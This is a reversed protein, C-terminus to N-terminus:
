LTDLARQVEGPSLLESLVLPARPEPRAPRHLVYVPVGSRGLAALAAGIAPDRRTWDARLLVVDRAAFAKLVQADNLTTRKNVQCTVCWAATYDVFVARGQALLAQERAPSWTQWGADDRTQSEAVSAADSFMSPGFTAGFWGGVALLVVCLMIRARGQLTLVWVLAALLVLLVLLTAAGDVGSQHGLVWVLWVVTLLMPFALVRRLTLMWAGPRPLLRAVAPIFTAALYPLALGLGLAGFIALAQAAPQTAALGLAAGMFPATCPSAVIVALVGTLAADLMPHRAQLTALRGPAMQGFEFLGALNLAIVTFLAALAAVMVPSQLQFGWGLSEGASRLGLLALGLALFSLLVGVTYALGSLRLTRRDQAHQAFGLVKIALIPLVCPMLNLILGGLLALALAAGFTLSTVNAASRTSAAKADLAEQLAPSLTVPAAAAPWAGRVPLEVRWGESANRHASGSGSGQALTLVVPLVVPSASRQASLPLTATWLPGQWAQTWPASPNLVDVTEPFADLKQGRLRQPLDAVTLKLHDGEIQIHSEGAAVDRPHARRAAEFAQADLSTAGRLPIRLTYRGEEPICESRCILWSAQLQLTLDNQGPAVQFDKSVTLPVPLLVTDEYGYNILPDSAGIAFKKPAPWAIDGAQIGPPLTWRLETPLGSDGPNKWYTHWDKAHTIRLGAWFTQGPAIGQPAHAVLETRAQGTQVVAGAATVASSLFAQAHAAGHLALAILLALPGLGGVLFSRTLLSLRSRRLM